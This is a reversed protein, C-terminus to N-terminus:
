ELFSLIILNWVILHMFFLTARKMFSYERMLFVFILPFVLCMSIAEVQNWVTYSPSDTAFVAMLM